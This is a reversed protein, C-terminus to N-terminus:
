TLGHVQPVDYSYGGPGVAIQSSVHRLSLM